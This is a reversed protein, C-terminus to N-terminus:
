RATAYQFPNHAIALYVYTEAVNPDTAIRFKFGNSLIDIMDTTTEAASSNAVLENNDVNYGVRTNDFMQWDSTSDLSKTMILAPRFGCYVFTGDADGNGEYVGSKIYGETNAFCYAIMAVGAANANNGNVTFYTSTPMVDGWTRYTQNTYLAATNNLVLSNGAATSGGGAGGLDGFFVEWPIHTLPKLLICDPASSLGHGVTSMNDWTSDYGTYSVISFGGSPDAQVTSTISGNGNSATTGGNARLSRGIFTALNANQTGATNGFTWGDSDFQGWEASYDVQAADDDTVIRFSGRTSDYIWSENIASRVKGWLWDPKFGVGTVAQATGGNGTYLVSNYLKQPYDDDTQAPDVEAATPINGACIALYDTPPAYLFDGYGNADTNGGATETGAFTSDQGFNFVVRCVSNQNYNGVAPIFSDGLVVTGLSGTGSAGSTPDSSNLWTGNMGIYFEGNDLDLALMGKDDGSFATFPGAGSPTGNISTQGERPLVLYTGTITEIYGVSNWKTAVSAEQFGVLVWNDIWKFEYYWKGTKGTALTGRQGANATSTTSAWYLNGETLTNQSVSFQDLPSITCMNGGNGDTASFTPSDLLVDDEPLNAVTFTNGNGSSDTGIAGSAMKLWYGNNGFTLGSPDKPIWVGNKTEGYSDPGYAQGDNFVIEALQVDSGETAHGVGSLGGFAQINGSQNIFSFDESAGIGATVSEVSWSTIREGNVYIKLRDAQTANTSDFTLVHHYWASTDRYGANPVMETGSWNGGSPQLSFDGGSGQFGWFLYGGGSGTTFVMNDPGGNSTNYRKVWYSMTFTDSSTPTGATWKLTGDQAASNRLSSAIQHTYFDGGGAGGSPKQWLENNFM